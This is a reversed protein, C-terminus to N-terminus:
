FRYGRLFDTVGIRKKSELQIDKVLLYGDAAAFKLYTKKDTDFDGPQM